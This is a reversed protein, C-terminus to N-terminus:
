VIRPTREVAALCPRLMIVTRCSAIRSRGQIGGRGAGVQCGSVSDSVVAPWSGGTVVGRWWVSCRRVGASHKSMVTLATLGKTGSAIAFRTDVTNAIRCSRHALGYAKALQVGGGCDVRVVGSFGTRAAIQDVSEAL